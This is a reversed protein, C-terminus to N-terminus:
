RSDSGAYRGNLEWDYPLYRIALRGELLAARTAPEEVYGALYEPLTDADRAFDERFWDFIQSVFATRQTIDFRNRTVDNVFRRAAEDLQADLTEPLYARNALRPCSISACVIAFHSRADGMPRIRKHELEDLTVDEGALRFELTKFYRFRSFRSGPNHGELIGRIAFANYANIYYTLEAARGTFSDPQQALQAVFADFKPHGRIGDYDVYGNRVNHLLVEDWLSYDPVAAPATAPALAIAAWLAFAPMRDAGRLITTIARM